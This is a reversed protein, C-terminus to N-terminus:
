LFMIDSRLVYKCDHNENVYVTEGQHLLKQSFILTNGCVPAVSLTQENILESNSKTAIQHPFSTCGGEFNDNLQILMTYRSETGTDSDVFHADRHPKFYHGNGYKYFRMHQNLGALKMVSMNNNSKEPTLNQLLNTQMLRNWLENAFIKDTFAIRMNNGSSPTSLQNSQCAIKRIDKRTAMLNPNEIENRNSRLDVKADTFGIKEAYDILDLCEQNCLFRDILFIDNNLRHVLNNAIGYNKRLISWM